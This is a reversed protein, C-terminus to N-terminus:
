DAGIGRTKQRVWHADPVALLDWRNNSGSVVAVLRRGNPTDVIVSGGSDGGRVVSPSLSFIGESACLGSVFRCKAPDILRTTETKVSVASLGDRLKCNNWDMDLCGHGAIRISTGPSLKMLQFPLPATKAPHALHLLATDHPSTTATGHLYAPEVYTRAITLVEGSGLMATFHRAAGAEGTPSTKVCHGATLLWREAILTGSCGWAAKGDNYIIFATYPYNTAHTLEANHIPYPYWTDRILLAIVGVLLVVVACLVATVTNRFAKV